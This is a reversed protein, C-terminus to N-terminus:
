LQVVKPEAIKGYFRCARRDWWYADYGRREAIAAAQKSTMVAAIMVLKGPIALLDAKTFTRTPGVSIPTM